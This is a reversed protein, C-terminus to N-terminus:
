EIIDGVMDTNSSVEFVIANNSRALRNFSLYTYGTANLLEIVDTMINNLNTDDSYYIWMENDKLEIRTVGSTDESHNLTGKIVDVPLLNIRTSEEVPETDSSLEDDNSSEDPESDVDLSVDSDDPVFEEKFDIPTGVHPASVHGSSSHHSSKKSRSSSKDSKDVSLSEANDSLEPAVNGLTQYDEDLDAILQQVLETNAAAEIKSRIENQRKSAIFLKSSYISQLM